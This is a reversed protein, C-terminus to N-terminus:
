NSKINLHHHHVNYTTPNSTQDDYKNDNGRDNVNYNNNDQDNYQDNNQNSHIHHVLDDHTDIAAMLEPGVHVQLIINVLRPSDNIHKQASIKM